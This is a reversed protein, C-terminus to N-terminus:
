APQAGAEPTDPGVAQAIAAVNTAIDSFTLVNAAYIEARLGRGNYARIAARVDGLSDFKGKLEMM